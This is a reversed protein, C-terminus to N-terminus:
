EDDFDSLEERVMAIRAANATAPAAKYSLHLRGIERGPSIGANM